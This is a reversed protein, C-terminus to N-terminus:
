GFLDVVAIGGDCRGVRNAGTVGEGAPIHREVVDGGIQRDRRLVRDVLVGQAEVALAATRGSGDRRIEAVVHGQGGGRGTGAVGEAVPVRRGVARAGRVRCAAAEGHGCR